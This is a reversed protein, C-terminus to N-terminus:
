AGAQTNTPLRRALAGLPTNTRYNILVRASDVCVALARAGAITTGESALQISSGPLQAVDDSRWRWWFLELCGQNGVVITDFCNSEPTM